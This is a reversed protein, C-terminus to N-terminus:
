DREDIPDRTVFRLADSVGGAAAGKGLEEIKRIVADWEARQFGKAAAVHPLDAPLAPAPREDLLSRKLDAWAPGALFAAVAAYNEKQLPM